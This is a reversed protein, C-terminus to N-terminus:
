ATPRWEPRLPREVALHWSRSECRNCLTFAPSAMRASLCVSTVILESDQCSIAM